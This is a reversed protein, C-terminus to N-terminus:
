LEEDYEGSRDEELASILTDYKGNVQQLLKRAELITDEMIDEQIFHPVLNIIRSLNSKYGGWARADLKLMKDKSITIVEESWNTVDDDGDCTRKWDLKDAEPMVGHFIVYFIYKLHGKSELAKWLISFSRFFPASWSLRRRTM